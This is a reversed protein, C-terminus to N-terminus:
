VSRKEHYEFEYVTQYRQEKQLWFAEQKEFHTGTEAFANELLAEIEPAPAATYLEATVTHHYLLIKCDGGDTEISDNYVIYDGSQPKLFRTKRYPIGAAGLIEDVPM